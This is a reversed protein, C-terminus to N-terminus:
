KASLRRTTERKFKRKWEMCETTGTSQIIKDYSSFNFTQLQVSILQLLEYELKICEFIILIWMKLMTSKAGVTLM